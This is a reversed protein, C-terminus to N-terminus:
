AAPRPPLSHRRRLVERVRAPASPIGLESMVEKLRERSLGLQLAAKGVHNTAYLARFIQARAEDPNTRTEEVFPLLQRQRPM